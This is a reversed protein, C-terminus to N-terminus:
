ALRVAWGDNPEPNPFQEGAAGTRHSVGRNADISASTAAPSPTM